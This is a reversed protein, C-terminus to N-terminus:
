SCLQCQVRRRCCRGLPRPALPLIVDPALAVLEAAQKRIVNALGEGWLYDIRLNRAEVWGLQQLTQMLVANRAQADPDNPDTGATLVGIRRMREGHQARAGLPWVAAAGGLLTIFERRRLQDFQM